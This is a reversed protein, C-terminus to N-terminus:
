TSRGHRDARTAAGMASTDIHTTEGNTHPSTTLTTTTISFQLHIFTPSAIAKIYLRKGNTCLFRLYPYKVNYHPTNIILMTPQLTFTLSTRPTQTVTKQSM